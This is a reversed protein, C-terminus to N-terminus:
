YHQSSCYRVTAGHTLNNKSSRLMRIARLSPLLISTDGIGMSGTGLEVIRFAVSGLFSGAELNAEIVCEIRDSKAADGPM